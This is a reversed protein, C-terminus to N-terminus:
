KHRRLYVTITLGNSTFQRESKYEKYIFNLRGLIEHGLKTPLGYFSIRTIGRGVYFQSYTYPKRQAKTPRFGYAVACRSVSERIHDMELFDITVETNQKAMIEGM